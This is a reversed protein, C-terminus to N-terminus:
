SVTKLCLYLTLLSYRSISFNLIIPDDSCFNWFNFSFVLLNKPFWFFHWLVLPVVGCPDPIPTSSTPTIVQGVSAGGGSFFVFEIYNYTIHAHHSIPLLSQSFSHLYNYHEQLTQTQWNNKYHKNNKNINTNTQQDQLKHKNINKYHKHTLARFLINRM